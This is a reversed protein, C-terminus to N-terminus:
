VVRQCSFSQACSLSHGHFSQILGSFVTMCSARPLLGTPTNKQSNIKLKQITFLFIESSFRPLCSCTGYSSSVKETVWTFKGYLAKLRADFCVAGLHIVIFFLFLFFFYFATYIILFTLFLHKFWSFLLQLWFYFFRSLQLHRIFNRVIALINLFM